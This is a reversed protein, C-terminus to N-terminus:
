DASAPRRSELHEEMKQVAALGVTAQAVQAGVYKIGKQPPIELVRRVGNEFVRVPAWATLKLGAKRCFPGAVESVTGLSMRPLAEPLRVLVRYTGGAARVGWWRALRTSADQATGRAAFKTATRAADEVVDRSVARAAERTAAKVESRTLESAATGEPQLAMLSLVDAVVFCGDVLAWSMEGATPTQRRTVVQGLHLLDYLPLFQVFQVDPSGLAAVRDLGDHKIMRITAQGNDGSIYLMGQALSEAFTKQPKTRLFALTEPGPDTQAIPPIIPPGYQRLIDRFDPDSAYKSLLALAMPGHEALAAVAQARLTPDTYDEYVVDAADAGAQALAREGGRGAFEAIMRLGHPSGGVQEVLGAAAAHRLHGAVVEASQTRLLDAVTDTNVRVLILAQELPLTDGLADLVRGYLKVLAFGEPGQLRFAELALPGHEDLTRLAARLSAAGDSLSMFDLVVLADRLDDPDAALRDFLETVGVPEALILPLANPYRAAARRQAPSLRAIEAILIGRDSEAARKMGFYERWHLLVDAAADDTLCDRLRRFDKPYKEYLFVAELDLRDLLMLGKIGDTREVALANHRYRKLTREVLAHHTGAPYKALLVAEPSFPAAKTAQAKPREIAPPSKVMLKTLVGLAALLVVIAFTRKM